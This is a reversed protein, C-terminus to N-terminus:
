RGRRLEEALLREALGALRRSGRLALRGAKIRCLDFLLWVPRALDPHRFALWLVYRAAFTRLRM